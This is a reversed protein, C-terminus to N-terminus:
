RPELCLAEVEKMGARFAALNKEVVAPGKRGFRQEICREIASAPLPLWRAAAGAMVMNTAQALGARRALLAADVLFARPLSRIRALLPEWAPYDGINQVPQTATVVAGAPSLYELYRLSELPELSLIMSAAGLPVLDSAIPADALRLHATVAGGRQAMGHVESQKVFLGADLAGAAIISSLSLVGQGGVGALVIDFKM